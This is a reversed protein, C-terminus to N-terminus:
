WAMWTASSSPCMRTASSATALTSSAHVLTFVQGFSKITVPLNELYERNSPTLTKATWDLAFRADRNFSEEDLRGLMGWDHNGPICLHPYQRVIDICENPQPGYGVLDGLCWLSDIDGMEELVTRLAAYNGHVDSVIGIRV